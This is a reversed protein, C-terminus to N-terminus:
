EDPQKRAEEFAIKLLEKGRAYKSKPQLSLGYKYATIEGLELVSTPDNGAYHELEMELIPCERGAATIKGDDLALEMINRDYTLRKRRRTFDMTVLPILKSDETLSLIERGKPTSGFVSIDPVHDAKEIDVPINLEEREYIGNVLRGDWKITCFAEGGERRVRLTIGADSLRRDATDYYVALMPVTEISSPDTIEMLDKGIWIDELTERDPLQYKVEIEM